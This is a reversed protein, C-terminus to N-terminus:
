MVEGHFTIEHSNDEYHSKCIFRLNLRSTVKQLQINWETQTVSLKVPRDDGVVPKNVITYLGMM